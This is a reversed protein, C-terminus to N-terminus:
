SIYTAAELDNKTDLFALVWTAAPLIADDLANLTADVLLAITERGLSIQEVQGITTSCPLYQLPNVFLKALEWHKLSM